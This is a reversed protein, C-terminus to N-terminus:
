RAERPKMVGNLRPQGTSEIAFDPQTGKPWLTISEGKKLGLEVTGGGLDKVPLPRDTLIEGM